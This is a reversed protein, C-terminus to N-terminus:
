FHRRYWTAILDASTQWDSSLMMCHPADDLMKYDAGYFRATAEDQGEPHLTGLDRGAAICIAPVDFAQRDIHIRLAYRDNLLQPSEPCLRRTFAGVNEAPLGGLFKEQCVADSPPAVLRDTQMLPLPALGDLQGPPSPALLGLGALPLSKGAAAAVLAGASHGVLVVPGDLARCAAAVDEAMARVGQRHLDNAQPLGGHGRMDMAAAPVNIADFYAVYHAFCWAGHYGGHVFLLAPRDGRKETAAGLFVRGESAPRQPLGDIYSFDFNPLPM